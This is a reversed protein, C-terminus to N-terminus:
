VHSEKFVLFYGNKLLLGTLLLVPMLVRLIVKVARFFPSSRALLVKRNKLDVLVFGRLLFRYLDYKRHLLDKASVNKPLCPLALALFGNGEVIRENFTLAESSFSHLVELSILAGFAESKFPPKRADGVILDDHLGFEKAKSMKNKSIDLGVLYGDYGLYLRLLLATFGFGSGMDIVSKPSKGKLFGTIWPDIGPSHFTDSYDKDYNLKM